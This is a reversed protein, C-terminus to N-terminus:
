RGGRSGAGAAPLRPGAMRALGFIAVAVLVLCIVQTLSLHAGLVAVSEGGPEYHRFFDVIFRSGSELLLFVFFLQGPRKLRGRLAWLLAFNMFGALALYLQTPHLPIGPYVRGAFSDPDFTV